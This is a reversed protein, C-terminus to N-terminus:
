RGYRSSHRATRAAWMAEDIIDRASPGEGANVNLSGILAGDGGSRVLTEVNSWQRGTLVAEPAGTNNQALTAGPPLWGGSDYYNNRDHFALAKVPTGYRQRIYPLGWEAQGAATPEVPGHISTMKQFLGRASSRPNAAAPNWSSEKQVLRELAPWQPDANWGFRAAVARVQAKANKGDLGVTGTTRGAEASKGLFFDLASDRITTAIGAPINMFEPPAPFLSRLGDIAPNTLDTFIQRIQDGLFDLFGGGEGSFDRGAVGPDLFSVHPHDMHNATPSGRDEMGDWGSGKNIQQQWIIYKVLLRRANALIHETVRNGLGTDNMTMFDLALGRPHDSANARKGVGGIGGPMRGFLREIEQGAAAVHPLVGGYAFAGFWKPTRVRVGNDLPYRGMLEQRAAGAQRGTAGGTASLFAKVGQVGGTRAAQNAADVYGRGGIARTWEPRMIAEGGSVAALGVDRGPTYGPYVGGRAFEPILPLEAIPDIGPLLDAVLNWAKRIGNNFVTGILFNIPVALLNRLGNWIDGIWTVVRNFNDGLWNLGGVLADWAPKIVQEWVFEIVAGIGDFAPKIVNNWLWMVAPTIINQIVYVLADWAPKIINTWVWAIFDGLAQFTPRIVNEWLWMVTPVIVDRVFRVLADFAPRIINNWVWAIFDGLAQFVPRVINEWLWTITPVLTNRVFAVIADFAPRIVQNFVWAIFDGLAQFVPKVVNEWLWTITPVLINRIVGVLAQLAPVVVNQVVWVLVDSLIDALTTIVPVLFGEIIAVLPPIVTDILQVFIDVVVDLIPTLASVLVDVVQMVAGVIRQFAPMLSSVLTGVLGTLVGLLRNVAERFQENSTYLTTLGIALWGVPGIAALLARVVFMLAQGIYPLALRILSIPQLLRLLVQGVITGQLGLAGLAASVVSVILFGRLATLVIGAIFSLPGLAAVLGGIAGIVTLVLQPNASLWEAVQVLIPTVALLAAVLAGAIQQAFQQILPTLAVLVPALATLVAGLVTALAQGLVLLIPQLAAMVPGLPQLATLFASAAPILGQLLQVLFPTLSVLLASMQDLLAFGAPALPLLQVLLNGFAGSLNIVSQALLPFITTSANALTEFFGLAAPSALATLLTQALGGASRALTGIAADIRPMQALLAELGTRLGPLFGTAATASLGNLADSLPGAVFRAFDAATPSLEAFAQAVKDAAAQGATGTQTLALQLARQADAVSEEAALVRQSASERADTLSQEAAQVRRRSQERADDLSQQAATERQAAQERAEAEAAAGEAEAKAIAAAGSIRAQTVGAAADRADRAAETERERAQELQRSAAVVKETGAVGAEQAAANDVALREQRKSLQDITELQRRYAVDARAIADADGSARAEDLRKKADALDFAAQEMDLNSSDLQDQLDQLSRRGDEWARNMDQQAYQLDRTAQRLTNQAQENRKVAAAYDRAADDRASSIRDEAQAVAQAVDRAGETRAQDLAAEARAVDQAGDIREQDLGARARSVERAGDTRAQTLDREARTLGTQAAQIQTAAQAQEQAAQRATAGATKQQDRLATVADGIGQFSLIVPALGAAAVAGAAGLGAFAGALGGVIGGLGALSSVLAIVRGISAVARTTDANIRIDVSRNAWQNIQVALRALGALARVVDVTVTITPRSRGIQDAQRQVAAFQSRAQATDAVVRALVTIAQAATIAQLQRLGAQDVILNARIDPAKVSSVARQAQATDVKLTAKLEIPGLREVERKVQGPFGRMDPVVTVHASGASYPM